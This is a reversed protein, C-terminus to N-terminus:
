NQFVKAKLSIKNYPLEKLLKLAPLMFEQQEANQEKTYNNEVNLENILNHFSVYSNPLQFPNCCFQM